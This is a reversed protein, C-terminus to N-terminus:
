LMPVLRNATRFAERNPDATLRLDSVRGTLLAAPVGAKRSKTQPISGLSALIRASRARKARAVPSANPRNGVFSFPVSAAVDSVKTLTYPGVPYGSEKYAALATFSTWSDTFKHNFYDMTTVTHETPDGEVTFTGGSVRATRNGADLTGTLGDVRAPVLAYKMTSPKYYRATFTLMGTSLTAIEQKNNIRLGGDSKLAATVPRNRYSNIGWGTISYTTNVVKQAIVVEFTVVSGDKESSTSEVQWTGIWAEYAPTPPENGTPTRFLYKSLATTASKTQADYGFAYIYYETGPTLALMDFWSADYGAIGTSLQDEPLGNDGILKAIWQADSLKDFEAAELYDFYYTETDNSPIVSLIASTPALDEVEFTFTMDSTFSSPDTTLASTYEYSVGNDDEAEFIHMYATSPALLAFVRELGSEGNLAALEEDTLQEGYTDLIQAPTSTQIAEDFDSKPMLAMRASLVGSSKMGALMAADTHEGQQDGPVLTVKVAPGIGTATTASAMEITTGGTNAVKAIFTYSKGPELDLIDIPFGETGNIRDIQESTFASGNNEILYSPTYGKELAADVQSKPFLGYRGAIAGTAKISATMNTTKNKGERDGRTLTLDLAPGDSGADALTSASVSAITSGVANTAKVVATYATGPELHIFAYQWGAESNLADLEEPELPTANKENDIISELTAGAALANDLEEKLALLVRGSTVGSSRGGITLKIDKDLGRTDGPVLTLQIEPATAPAEGSTFATKFLASAAKGDADVAYVYAYYPTLPEATEVTVVADAHTGYTKLYDAVTMRQEAALAEIRQVEAALFEKESAYAEFQTKVTAGYLYLASKDSPTIRLTAQGPAVEVKLDFTVPDPVDPEDEKDCGSASLLAVAAATFIRSYLKLNMRMLNLNIFLDCDNGTASFRLIRIKQRFETIKVM